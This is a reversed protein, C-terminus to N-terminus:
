RIRKLNSSLFTKQKRKKSGNKKPSKVQVLQTQLNKTLNTKKKKRNLNKLNIELYPNMRRMPIEKLCLTVQALPIM